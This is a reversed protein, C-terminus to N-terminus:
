FEEPLSDGSSGNAKENHGETFGGRIDYYSSIYEQSQSKTLESGRDDGVILCVVIMSGM